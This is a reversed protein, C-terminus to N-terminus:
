SATPPPHRQTLFDHVDGATPPIRGVSNPHNVAGKEASPQPADCDPPQPCSCDAIGPIEPWHVNFATPRACKGGAAEAPAAGGDPRNPNPPELACATTRADLM